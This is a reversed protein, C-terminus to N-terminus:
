SVKNLRYIYNMMLETAELALLATEAQINAHVGANWTGDISIILKYMSELIVAERNSNTVQEIRKKREEATKGITGDLIERMSVSCYRFREPNDSDLASYAGCYKKGLEPDVHELAKLIKEEAELPFEGKVRKLTDMATNFAINVEKEYIDGYNVSSDILSKVHKNFEDKSLLKFENAKNKLFNPKSYKKQRKAYGMVQSRLLKATQPSFREIASIM